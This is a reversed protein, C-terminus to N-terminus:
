SDAGGPETAGYLSAYGAQHTPFQRVWLEDPIRGQQGPLRGSDQKVFLPVGADRCQAVTDGLWRLDMMQNRYDPGSAGGVLIWDLGGCGDAGLWPRWDVRALMPEYSVWRIRARTQMLYRLRQDQPSTISVGAWVNPPLTHRLSFEKQRDARKTLFLWNHPSAAIVRLEPALWDDPLSATFTDGMDNVFIIRPLDNLWPKKERATGTLDKWRAATAIRSPFITPKSFAPPWGKLPGKSLMQETYRGAYCIRIARKPDWLECGDCGMEANVTDDAWEIRTGKM